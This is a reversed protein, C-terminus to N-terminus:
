SKNSTIKYETEQAERLRINSTDRDKYRFPMKGNFETRENNVIEYRCSVNKDPCCVEETELTVTSINSDVGCATAKFDFTFSGAASPTYTFHGTNTNLNLGSLTGGVETFTVGSIDGSFNTVFERLDGSFEEGICTNFSSDSSVPTRPCKDLTITMTNYEKLM